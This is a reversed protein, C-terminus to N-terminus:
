IACSALVILAAMSAVLGLAVFTGVFRPPVTDPPAYKRGTFMPVILNENRWWWHWLIAVVHTVALGAILYAVAAHARTAAHSMVAGIRLALPGHFGLGHSSCLGLVAQSLLAALLCVVM